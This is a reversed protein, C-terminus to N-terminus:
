NDSRGVASRAHASAPSVSLLRGHEFELRLDCNDLTSIRHAIMFTTSMKMLLDLAELIGAETKYDVSSTPEDLILIPAQKLFARAISIRQREGGSLQMGREGVPTEYGRPLATIFDHANAAEAAAIIEDFTADQRGYAINERITTSFLVPEQLVIAFQNRLDAVKYDRLDIGDLLIRGSSPDYFRLLLTVLTTKGAGTHGRVGVITGVPIHFSIDRLVPRSSEYGFSVHEFTVAGRARHVSIAERKEPVEPLEDLLAFAREAGALHTQASGSKTGITRLPEYLKNIYTAILLLSGLSLQGARVHSAGILLVAANGVALTVSTVLTYGGHMFTVRIRRRVGETAKAVYRAHERQEQGFAKVVRLTTLGEQVVSEISSELNKMEIWAPKLRRRRDVAIWFLIPTISLAVLALQVDFRLIVVIMGVLTLAATLFPIIADTALDQISAADNQIRYISDATGKSDHYSLSLRQAHRMLQSRFALGINETAYTQLVSTAATLIQTLLSMIVVLGAGLWLVATPSHALSEPLLRALGAPLPQAGLYNDVILKLPVPTLLTLPTSLLGLAMVGGLPLWYPRLAAAIRRYLAFESTRPATM